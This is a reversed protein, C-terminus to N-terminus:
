FHIEFPEQGAREARASVVVPKDRFQLSDAGTIEVSLAMPELSPAVAELLLALLVFVAAYCAM